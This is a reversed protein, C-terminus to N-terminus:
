LKLMAVTNDVIQQMERAVYSLKNEELDLMDLVRSDIKEPPDTIAANGAYAYQLYHATHLIAASERINEPAELPRMYYRVSETISEPINWLKLLEASIECHSFGLLDQEIIYQPKLQDHCGANIKVAIDPEATFLVLKGIYALIGATFLQVPVAHNNKAALIQAAVALRICQKWFMSMDIFESSIGSFTRTVSSSFIILYLTSIGVVPLASEVESIKGEHNYWASNALELTRATLSPDISIADSIKTMPADTSILELLQVLVEPLVPLEPNKVLSEIKIDAAM